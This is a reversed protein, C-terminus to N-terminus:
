GAMDLLQDIPEYSEKQLIRETALEGAKVLLKYAGAGMKSTIVRYMGDVVEIACNDDIAVGVGSRRRLDDQFAERREIGLSEEDFHPCVLADILGMGRVM